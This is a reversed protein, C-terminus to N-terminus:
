VKGVECMFKVAIQEMKDAVGKAKRSLFSHMLVCPIAVYLGYETTILAESIGSSLMKVDGSGFVTMLNFTSIIGTVTGLLGLLPACAAAVAVFPLFRNLSTKADLMKEFMAEEILERPQDLVEAGARLMRGTMGKMQQTLILARTNNKTRIASLLEALVKARPLRVCALSLWKLVVVILACCLLLLIPWMVAGGKLFHQVVTEKIEEIKRANGLSADFPISGENKEVAIKTMATLTPDSCSEVVPILSGVRQNAIGALSGDDSAFYAVPGFLLFRGQRVIGDDASAGGQFKLGGSMEELRAMSVFMLRLQADFAAVPDTSLKEQASRASEVIEKYNELESIHLRTEFNRAYEGLLSALYNRETERGKIENRLAAMELTSSDSQRKIADYERRLDSLSQEAASLAQTLPIKEDAIRKRVDSLRVTSAALRAQMAEAASAAGNTGEQAVAALTLMGALGVTFVSKM